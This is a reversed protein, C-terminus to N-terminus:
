REKMALQYFFRFKIYFIYICAHILKCQIKTYGTDAAGVNQPNFRCQNDQAEYPYSDETDVGQNDKIYQFAL